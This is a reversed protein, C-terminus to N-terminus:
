DEEYAAWLEFIPEDNPGKAFGGLGDTKRVSKMTIGANKLASPRNGASTYVGVIAWKGPNATLQAIVDGWQNSRGRGGRTSRPPADAFSLSTSSVAGFGEPLPKFGGRKSSAGNTAPAEAVPTTTAAKPKTAPM